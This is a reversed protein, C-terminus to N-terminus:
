RETTLYGRSHKLGPSLPLVLAASVFRDLSAAGPAVIEM